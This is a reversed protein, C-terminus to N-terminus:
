QFRKLKAYAKSLFHARRQAKTMPMRRRVEDMKAIMDATPAWSRAMWPDIDKQTSSYQLGCRRTLANGHNLIWKNSVWKEGVLVPCAAHLTRQDIEGSPTYSYWFLAANKIPRIAMNLNPFITAGGKEVDSLYLLFTAMRDGSGVVVHETDPTDFVIPDVHFSYHGGLGYNVVQMPEACSLEHRLKNLNTPMNLHTLTGARHSIWNILPADWDELWTLHSTRREDKQHGHKGVTVGKYLKNRAMGQVLESERTNLVDYFVSVYPAWSLIEEGFRFYPVFLHKYRCYLEPNKFDPATSNELACLKFFKKDDTSYGRDKFRPRRPENLEQQLVTAEPDEMGGARSILETLIKKAEQVEKCRILARGLLAKITIESTGDELYMLENMENFQGLDAINMYTDKDKASKGKVMTLAVRLWAVAQKSRVDQFATWGILFTEEGSLTPGSLGSYNGKVMEKPELGYVSQLRIMALRADVIDDADSFKELQGFLYEHSTKKSKKAIDRLKKYDNAYTIVTNYQGNPHNLDRILQTFNKRRIEVTRKEYFDRFKQNSKLGARLNDLIFNEQLVMGKIRDVSTVIASEVLPVVLMLCFLLNAM